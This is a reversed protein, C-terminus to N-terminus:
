KSTSIFGFINAMDVYRRGCDSLYKNVVGRFCEFNDRNLESLAALEADGIKNINEKSEEDIEVLPKLHRKRAKEVDFISDLYLLQNYLQKDSYRYKMIGKCGHAKGSIGICRRGYVSIQRTVIGCTTDDCILWGAYYLSINARITRELQASVCLPTLETLCKGCQIGRHTIKYDNSFTLGAFPFKFGCQCQLQLFHADRFREADTITSELPQLENTPGSGGALRARQEYKRFDLDLCKAIRVLDIGEIREVLREVPAYLQKELYYEPDVKLDRNTIMEKLARAREAPQTNEEGKSIVFTIVTGAKIMKGQEKLRLAVQVLPMTKGAAYQKPDKSLRTNIAFKDVRIENLKIKATIDELYSYIENLSEEPDEDLLLKNLIFTSVDKSLQCYERRRMDLGKVELSTIEKGNVYSVNMAAYKKKAHLLIRKFVNDIDIELLKYRENVKLKFEEGIRLAEQFDRCGTDIMVSDTDGYIVRLGLSEALQRTDMLIERGKNTVLMALPKAYFRSHIYGLCGYMSNATLKLAQQKIDYQAKEFPTLKSDKLLKKVERRRSVLTALLRPLVGQASDHDPVNPLEDPNYPSREVTTFCINFEQIISPYLSNFDMVLIHNKHLGKEPEFVLGGQYKPKKNSTATTADEENDNMEKTMAANSHNKNFRSEKDPNIYGNRSFEHLLIYENRGARTGGLTHSWANGALNTLQKSLSLIQTGFAIEASHLSNNLVEKLNIMLTNADEAIKPNNFNVEFNISKKKCVMEYMEPLDWSQCKSTLSQGLENAIDCLLRGQFIERIQLNNLNRNNGFRDPWNKRNRRGFTSWTPIQLDHMRHVLVDLSITELRHGIFVDPDHVKILACLCNLLTKENNFTRLPFGQQKALPILGPPFVGNVTRLLTVVENPQLDEPVPADQPLDNYFALSVAAIEQKNQKVNLSKEISISVLNLPPTPLQEPLVNVNKLDNIAVEVKCHSTNQLSEFDGNKVELWCPGMVNKQIVFSEFINTNTGFIHSFTEGELEAPLTIRSNKPTKFPLLLKLYNTEERPIGALEFAYKKKEPKARISDLGFKDLILPVIEEHVDMPGVEEDTDEGDVKRYKRPLLFLEKCLGNVQVMGSVLQGNKTLIKGFLLLSHDVDAFDMWFFKFSPNEEDEDLEVIEEAKVKINSQVSTLEEQPASETKPTEKTASLNVSRSINASASARPRRTVMIDDEEEDDEEDSVKLTDKVPSSAIPERKVFETSPEAKISAVRTPSSPPYNDVSMMSYDGGSYDADSSLKPKKNSLDEDQFVSVMKNPRKQVSNFGSFVNNSKKTSNLVSSSSPTTRPKVDFDNLIDDVSSTDIKKSQVSQQASSKLLLNISSGSKKVQRARKKKVVSDTGADDADDDDDSYYNHKTDWEDVGNDVYGEGNDDVVFDDKLLQDRKHKRYEEEDVEDYLDYGATGYDDDEYVALSSKAARAAKLRAFKDGKKAMQNHKDSSQRDIQKWTM